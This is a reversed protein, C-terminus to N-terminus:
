RVDIDMGVIEKGAGVPVSVASEFDPSAPYYISSSSPPRQVRLYFDGPLVSIFSYQGASDTLTDAGEIYVRRGDQQSAFGLNVRAAALPVGNAARIRGRVTAPAVLSLVVDHSSPPVVNVAAIGVLGDRKGMVLFKGIAVNTLVANGASDTVPPTRSAAGSSMISFRTTISIYAPVPVGDRIAPRFKWKEAAAVANQGLGHGPESLIEAAGVTGDERVFVMLSVQGQIGLSRAEDSYQPLTQQILIPDSMNSGVQPIPVSTRSFLAQEAESRTRVRSIGAQAQLIALYTRLAEAADPALHTQISNDVFRVLTVEVGAAPAPSGAVTATVRVTGGGQQAATIATFGLLSLAAISSKLMRLPLIDQAVIRRGSLETDFSTM